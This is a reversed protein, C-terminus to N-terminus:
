VRYMRSVMSQEGLSGPLGVGVDGEGGEDGERRFGFGRQGETLGGGEGDVRRCCPSHERVKDREVRRVRRRFLPVPLLLPNNLVPRIRRNSRCHNLKRLLPSDASNVENARPADGRRRGV